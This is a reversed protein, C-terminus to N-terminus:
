KEFFGLQEPTYKKDKLFSIVLQLRKRRAAQAFSKCNGLLKNKSKIDAIWEQALLISADMSYNNIYSYNFVGTALTQQIDFEASDSIGYHILLNLLESIDDYYWEAESSTDYSFEIYHGPCDVGVEAGLKNGTYDCVSFDRQFNFGEQKGTHRNFFPVQKYIIM